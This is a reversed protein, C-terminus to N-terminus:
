SFTDSIQGELILLIIFLAISNSQKYVLGFKLNWEGMPTGIGILVKINLKVPKLWVDFVECFM